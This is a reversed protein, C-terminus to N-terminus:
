RLRGNKCNPLLKVKNLQIKLIMMQDLFDLIQDSFIIFVELLFLNTSRFSIFFLQVNFTKLVLVWFLVKGIGIEIGIIPFLGIGIGTEITNIM